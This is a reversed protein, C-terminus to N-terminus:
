SRSSTGVMHWHPSHIFETKSGGEKKGGKEHACVCLGVHARQMGQSYGVCVPQRRGEREGGPTKQEEVQRAMHEDHGGWRVWGGVSLLLVMDSEMWGVSFVCSIRECALSRASSFWFVCTPVHHYLHTPTGGWGGVGGVGGGGVAGGCVCVCVCTVGKCTSLARTASSPLMPVPMTRAAPLDMM